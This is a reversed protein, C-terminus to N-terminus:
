ALVHFSISCFCIVSDGDWGCLIPVSVEKLFTELLSSNLTLGSVYWVLIWICFISQDRDTFHVTRCHANISKKFFNLWGRQKKRVLGCSLENVLILIGRFKTDSFLCILYPCWNHSSIYVLRKQKSLNYTVTANLHFFFGFSNQTNMTFFWFVKCM